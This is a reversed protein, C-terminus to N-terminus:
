DLGLGSAAIAKLRIPDREGDAVAKMVRLALDNLFQDRDQPTRFFIAAWANLREGATSTSRSRFVALLMSYLLRAASKDRRLSELAENCAEWKLAGM